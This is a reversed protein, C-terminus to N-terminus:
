SGTRQLYAAREAERVTVGTRAELWEGMQRARSPDGMTRHLVRRTAGGTAVLEYFEDGDSDRHNEIALMLPEVRQESERGFMRRRWILMGRQPEIQEEGTFLAWAGTAFLAAFLIMAVPGAHSSPEAVVGQQSVWVVGFVCTLAGIALLLGLRRKPGPATRMLESGTVGRTLEWGPIPSQSLDSKAPVWGRTAERLVRLLEDREAPTALEAFPRRRTRTDLIAGMRRGGDSLAVFDERAVSWRERFPGARREREIRTADWRVSEVGILLGLLHSMAGLGGVTWFTTWVGLFVAIFVSFGASAGHTGFSPMHAFAPALGWAHLLSMLIAGAFAMGAAWGCLWFALFAAPLFRLWGRARFHVQWGSEWPEQELM